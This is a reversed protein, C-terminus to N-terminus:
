EVLLPTNENVDEEQNIEEPKMQKFSFFLILKKNDINKKKIVTSLVLKM